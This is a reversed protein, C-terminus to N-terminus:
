CRGPTEASRVRVRADRSKRFAALTAGSERERLQAPSPSVMLLRFPRCSLRVRGPFFMLRYRSIKFARSQQFGACAAIADILARHNTSQPCSDIQTGAIRLPGFRPRTSPRQQVYGMAPSTATQGFIGQARQRNCEIGTGIRATRSMRSVRSPPGTKHMADSKHMVGRDLTRGVAAAHEFRHRQLFQLAEIGARSVSGRATSASSIILFSTASPTSPIM